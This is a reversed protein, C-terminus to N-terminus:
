KRCAYTVLKGTFAEGPPWDQPSVEDMRSFGATALLRRYDGTEYAQMRSGYRDVGGNEHVVWYSTTAVKANEDWFQEQLLLHPHPSFLGDEKHSQWGPPLLGQRKVEECTHAEVVLVGNEALLSAAHGFIAEADSPTFVNIEGFTLLITDFPGSISFNRIDEELYTIALGERAAQERAYAVSAPSFDIGTCQFGLQALRQTYFGPGCGLDLIRGEQRPATAALWDVQRDIVTGRRSAWDHDQALHNQLMRRSFGADNWPIKEGSRWPPAPLKRDILDHLKM